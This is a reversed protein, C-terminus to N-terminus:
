GVSPVNGGVLRGIYQNGRGGGQPNAPDGKESLHLARRLAANM